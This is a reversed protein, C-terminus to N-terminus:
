YGAETLHQKVLRVVSEEVNNGTVEALVEDLSAGEISMAKELGRAFQEMPRNLEAGPGAKDFYLEEPSAALELTVKEFTMETKTVDMILVRPKRENYDTRAVRGISGLSAFVCDNVTKLGQDNHIHGFLCVDMGETPVQDYTIVEWPYEKGPRLLTMHAVKIAWDVDPKRTLGANAPDSDIGDFYNAPSWQISLMDKHNYLTMVASISGHIPTDPLVYHKVTDCALWEIAGTEFLTGLPMDHLGELGESNLDHNGAIGYKEGPWEKLLLILRNLVRFPVSRRHFIDGTFVTVKVDQEEAIEKAEELMKFIDELWIDRCGAPPVPTIHLDNLVMIKM